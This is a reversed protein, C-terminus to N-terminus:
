GKVETPLVPDDICRSPRQAYPWGLASTKILAVVKRRLYRRLYRMMDGLIVKERYAILDDLPADHTNLQNASIATTMLRGLM